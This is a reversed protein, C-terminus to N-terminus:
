SSSIIDKICFTWNHCGFYLVCEKSNGQHKWPIICPNYHIGSRYLNDLVCSSSVLEWYTKGRQNHLLVLSSLHPWPASNAKRIVYIIICTNYSSSGGFLLLLVCDANGMDSSWIYSTRPWSASLVLPQAGSLIRLTQASLNRCVLPIYYRHWWGSTWM